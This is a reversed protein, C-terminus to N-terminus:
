VQNTNEEYHAQKLKHKIEKIDNAVTRYPINTARSLKMADGYEVYQKMLQQEYWEIKDKPEKTFFSILSDFSDKEQPHEKDSNYNLEEFNSFYKKRFKNSHWTLWCCTCFFRELDRITTLDYQKEIILIITESHLDQYLSNDGSITKAIRYYKKGYFSHFM